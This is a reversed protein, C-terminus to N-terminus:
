GLAGPNRENEHAIIAYATALGHNVISYAAFLGSCAALYGSVHGSPVEASAYGAGFSVLLLLPTRVAVGIARGRMVRVNEADFDGPMTEAYVFGPNLKRWPLSM